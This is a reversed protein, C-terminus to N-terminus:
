SREDFARRMRRWGDLHRYPGIGLRTLIVPPWIGSELLAPERLVNRLHRARERWSPSHDVQFRTYEFIGFNELHYMAMFLEVERRTPTFVMRAHQRAFWEDAPASCRALCYARNCQCFLEVLSEQLPQVIQNYLAREEPLDLTLVLVADDPEGVQVHVTRGHFDASGKEVQQRRLYGDASGHTAGLLMEYLSRNNNYVNFYPTKQPFDAFLLGQKRNKDSRETAILSGIFYGQCEIQGDLIYHINDQISGKWGVDVLALGERRYDVGFSDLYQIFNQRQEVRRREYERTFAPHAILAAFSECNRLDPIRTTSDYPLEACLQQVFDEALNLSLLFEQLSIDRYHNLLRTFDEQDLPRLSPLFTAKRSVLLYQSRIRCHGFLEEQYLDFLRKLLEGEKSLFFVEHRGEASLSTFLRHIFLWLSYGMEMFPQEEQRTPTTKRRFSVPPQDNQQLCHYIHQQHPNVVQIARLGAQRAMRVDAHPNDGIMVMQEPRCQLDACIKNYLHGSGKTMDHDASVYIDAFLDALGHVTLMERFHSGPLYFDSVLLLRFGQGHLLQVMSVTERCILQVQKEVALEIHLMATVFQDQSWGQVADQLPLPLHTFFLGAFDALNFDPARGAAINRECVRLELDRRAEYLVMGPCDAQVLRCFQEAALIKTHEPVVERVVLTDFYDFCILAPPQPHLQPDRLSALIAESQNQGLEWTDM